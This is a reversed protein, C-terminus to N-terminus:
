TTPLYCKSNLFWYFQHVPAWVPRTNPPLFFSPPNFPLLQILPVLIITECVDLQYGIWSQEATTLQLRSHSIVLLIVPCHLFALVTCLASIDRLRTGMKQRYGSLGRKGRRGGMEREVGGPLKWFGPPWNESLPLATTLITKLSLLGM